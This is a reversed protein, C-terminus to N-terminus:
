GQSEVLRARFDQARGADGHVAVSDDGRRGWMWLFVDAPSGSVTVEADGPGDTITAARAATESVWRRGGAEIAVAADVPHAWEHEPDLYDGGLFVRLVEDIGDLALDAPIDTAEGHALECDYRHVAAELAMRRAWFTITSDAGFTVTAETPDHRAFEAFLDDRGQRLLDVPDVDDYEAPPWEQPWAGDAMVRVKHLYVFGVHDVVQEVTWGPCSPVPEALGLAAMELLRETDADILQFYREPDLATSESM